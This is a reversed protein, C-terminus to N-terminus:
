KKIVYTRPNAVRKLFNNLGDDVPRRQHVILAGQARVGKPSAAQVEDELIVVRDEKKNGESIHLTLPIAEGDNDSQLTVACGAPPLSGHLGVRLYAAQGARAVHTVTNCHQPQGNDIDLFIM